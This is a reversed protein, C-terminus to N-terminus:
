TTSARSWNSHQEFHAWVELMFLQVAKTIFRRDKFAWKVQLPLQRLEHGENALKDAGVNGVIDNESIIGEAIAKDKIAKRKPDDLHAPM